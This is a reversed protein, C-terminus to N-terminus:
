NTTMTITCSVVSFAALVSATIGAARYSSPLKMRYQRVSQKATGILSWCILMFVVGIPIAITTVNGAGDSSRFFFTFLSLVAMIWVPVLGPRIQPAARDPLPGGPTVHDTWATGDWYRQVNVREPDPYWGAPAIATADETM